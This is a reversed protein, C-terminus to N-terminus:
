DQSEHRVKSTKTRRKNDQAVGEGKDSEDDVGSDGINCGLDVNRVERGEHHPINPREEVEISALREEKLQPVDAGETRRLVQYLLLTAWSPRRTTKVLTPTGSAFTMPRTLLLINRVLSAGFYRGANIVVAQKPATPAVIVANNPDYM